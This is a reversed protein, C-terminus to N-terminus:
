TAEPSDRKDWPKEGSKLLAIDRQRCPLTISLAPNDQARQHLHKPKELGPEKGLNKGLWGPSKLQM